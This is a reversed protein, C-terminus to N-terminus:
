ATNSFDTLINNAIFCSFLSLYFGRQSVMKWDGFKVVCM